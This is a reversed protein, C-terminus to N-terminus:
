VRFFICGPNCFSNTVCFNISSTGAGVAGVAGVAGSLVGAGAGAKDSASASSRAIFCLM